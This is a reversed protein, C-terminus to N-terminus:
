GKFFKIRARLRSTMKKTIDSIYIPYVCEFDDKFDEIFRKSPKEKFINYKFCDFILEDTSDAFEKQDKIELYRDIIMKMNETEM